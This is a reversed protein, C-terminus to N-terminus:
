SVLARLAAQLAGPKGVVKCSRRPGKLGPISWVKGFELCVWERNQMEVVRNGKRFTCHEVTVGNRDLWAEQAPTLRAKGNNDVTLNGNHKITNM